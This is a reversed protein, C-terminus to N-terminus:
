PSRELSSYLWAGLAASGSALACIGAVAPAPLDRAARVTAVLDVLDAAVGGAIWPRPDEGHHLASLLGGGIAADRAGMAAALVRSAPRRAEAGVWAAAAREPQVTLAAGICLRGVAQAMAVTRPEPPAM